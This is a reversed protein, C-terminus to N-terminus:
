NSKVVIELFVLLLVGKISKVKISSLKREIFVLCKLNLNIIVIAFLVLLVATVKFIMVFFWTM